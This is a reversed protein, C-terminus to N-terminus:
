ADPTKFKIDVYMLFLLESDVSVISCKLTHIGISKDLENESDADDTKM